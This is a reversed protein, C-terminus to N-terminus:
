NLAPVSPVYGCHGGLRPWSRWGCIPLNPVHQDQLLPSTRMLIKNVREQGTAGGPPETFVRITGEGDPMSQLNVVPHESVRGRKGLFLHFLCPHLRGGGEAPEKTMVFIQSVSGASKFNGTMEHESVSCPSGDMVLCCASAVHEQPALVSYV